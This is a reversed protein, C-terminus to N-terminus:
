EEFYAELIRAIGAAQKGRKSWTGSIDSAIDEEVDIDCVDYYLKEWEEEAFSRLADGGYGFEKEIFLLDQKSLRDTCERLTM